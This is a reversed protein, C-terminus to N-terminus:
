FIFHSLMPLDLLHQVVSGDLRWFFFFFFFQQDRGIRLAFLKAKKYLYCIVKQGLFVKLYFGFTSFTSKPTFSTWDIGCCGSQQTDLLVRSSHEVECLDGKARVEGVFRIRGFGSVNLSMKLEFEPCNKIFVLNLHKVSSTM